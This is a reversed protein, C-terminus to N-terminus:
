LEKQLQQVVQDSVQVVLQVQAGIEPLNAQQKANLEIERIVKHLKEIGLLDYTPKLKHATASVGPWDAAKYKLELETVTKPVTDVFIQKTRRIMNQNGRTMKELLSLDYLPQDPEEEQVQVQYVAREEEAMTKPADAPLAAKIKLFLEEEQFPKSVYDNMGADIYKEADGKIVNATLAIIPVNAKKQDPLLRILQTADLGNLEPMQIDMLIVDYYHEKAMEVAKVGNLAVDVTAGWEEMISRALFVNVENDEALLVHLHQLESFNLEAAPEPNIQSKSKKYPITFKFSSGKDKQSEVWIHGKQMEVLAKSINLGLGTGGYKRTTSSYAQTFGEFISERKDEPIGIGTDQVMFELEQLEENQHVLRVSLEVFGQETFKIANNLLNLLIQNLRYPDGMLTALEPPFPKLRYSVEKEEAKYKLTEYAQTVTDSLNFPIHEITIKGAELKSFDLIDNIVVLLNDSSHRIINLYNKQAPTLETKGLLGAMGMIGNMPTRIEHSMNALFNEKARASEEAVDKARKLEEEILIRETIDQAIAILYPADGQEQVKYSQCYLYRREGERDTITFLGEAASVKDFQQLYEQYSQASTYSFFLQFGKGLVDAEALGLQHLLYPNVSLINGEMDHTLIYAQSHKILERYKKESSKLAESAKKRDSIDRFSTQIKYTEGEKNVIPKIAVEVWIYEGEKRRLRLDVMTNNKQALVERLTDSNVQVADDPHLLAFPSMGIMESQTYGFLDEVSKSIFTITGDTDHLCIVDKSNESLLRYLEESKQLQLKAQKEETIDTAISLIQVEGSRAVLPKKVIRLWAEQGNYITFPEEITHQCMTRLVKADTEQVAANQAAQRLVGSATKDIIEEAPRGVYAAFTNNVYSYIGAADKVYILNFSNDMIQRLLEDKEKLLLENEHQETINRVMMLLTDDDYKLVRTECFITGKASDHNHKLTAIQGTRLVQDFHEQFQDALQQPLLSRLNKGVLEAETMGMPIYASNNAAKFTGDKDVIFVLDPIARLIAKNYAESTLAEQQANHLATVDQGSTVLLKVRGKEDILPNIERIVHTAAGAEDTITESMQVPAKKELAEKLHKSRHLFREEPLNRFAAFETNNKGLMWDRVEKEKIASPNVYKYRLEHDFVVIESSITDLISEYFAKQKALLQTHRKQETIDIASGIVQTVQGAANREFVSERCALWRVNGAKDKVKYELEDVDDSPSHAIRQLRARVQEVQDECIISFLFTEGMIAVDVSNYGLVQEVYSNTYLTKGTAPEYIFIIGPVTRMINHVLRQSEKLAQQAQRKTSIDILYLRVFEHHQDHVVSFNYYSQGLYVVCEGTYLDKDAKRIKRLLLKGLAAQRKASLQQLLKHAAANRYLLEGEYSVSFVPNPNHDTFTQQQKPDPKQPVTDLADEASLICAIGTAGAGAVEIGAVVQCRFDTGDVTIRTTVPGASKGPAVAPQALFAYEGLSSIPKGAYSYAPAPLAVYAAFADNVSVITGQGDTVLIGYQLKEFLLVALASDQNQDHMM